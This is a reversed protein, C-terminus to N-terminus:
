RGGGDCGTRCWRARVQRVCEPLWQPASTPGAARARASNQDGTAVARAAALAPAMRSPAQLRGLVTTAAPSPRRGAEMGRKGPPPTTPPEARWRIPPHADGPRRDLVTMAMRGSGAVLPNARSPTWAERRRRYGLWVLASDACTSSRELLRGPEAVDDHMAPVTDAAQAAKRRNAASSRSRVRSRRGSVSSRTCPPRTPGSIAIRCRLAVGTVRQVPDISPSRRAGGALLLDRRFDDVRRPLQRGLRESTRLRSGRAPAVAARRRRIARKRDAAEGIGSDGSWAAAMSSSAPRGAFGSM